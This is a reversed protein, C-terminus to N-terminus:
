KIGVLVLIEEGTFRDEASLSHPTQGGHTKSLEEFRSKTNEVFADVSEEM